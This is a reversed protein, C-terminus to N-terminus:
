KKGKKPAAKDASVPAAAGDKIEVGIANMTYEVTVKSGVAPKGKIKVKSDIAIEWKEEGKQITISTDTVALVPGTVQYTKPGAFSSGATALVVTAVITLVSHTLKM